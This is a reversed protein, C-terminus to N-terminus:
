TGFGQVGALQHRAQAGDQAAQLRLRRPGSDTLPSTMHGSFRRTSHVPARELM